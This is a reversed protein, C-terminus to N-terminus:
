KDGRSLIHLAMFKAARFQLRFWEPCLGFCQFIHSALHRAGIAREKYKEM